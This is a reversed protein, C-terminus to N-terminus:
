VCGKSFILLFRIGQFKLLVGSTNKCFPTEFIHLLNVSCEHRLAIEIFNIQLKISNFKPM